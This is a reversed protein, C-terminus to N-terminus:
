IASLNYFVRANNAWINQQETLSYNVLLEHTLGVWNDYDGNLKLVPWDSGWMIRNTGFISMIHDFYPCIQAANVDNNLAETVLGSLKISVNNLAKFQSLQIKWYVSPPKDIHPKACHNIVIKLLPYQKALLYIATLHHERVLADFTLNNASLYAFIPVFQADLIWDVDDMDQLMPRIGKFYPNQNFVDLTALATQSEMDIWGVVGAVYDTKEAIELLFLTEAETASAQVLITENVHNRKVEELLCEPLYDKYLLQIDQTLWDYFGRSLEWFHQHSDVKDIPARNVISESIPNKSM